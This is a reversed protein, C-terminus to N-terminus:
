ITCLRKLNTEKVEYDADLSGEYRKMSQYCMEKEHQITNRQRSTSYNSEYVWQLVNQIAELNQCIHIFRSYMDM